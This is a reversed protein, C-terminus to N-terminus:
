GRKSAAHFCKPIGFRRLRVSLSCASDPFVPGSNGATYPLPAFLADPTQYEKAECYAACLSWYSNRRASCRSQKRGGGKYVFRLSKPLSKQLPSHFPLSDIRTVPRVVDPSPFGRQQSPAPPLMTPSVDRNCEFDGTPATLKPPLCLISGQTRCM